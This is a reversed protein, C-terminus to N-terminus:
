SGSRSATGPRDPAALYQPFATVVGPTLGEVFGPGVEEILLIAQRLCAAARALRQMTATNHDIISM